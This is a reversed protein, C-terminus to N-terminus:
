VATVGRTHTTKIGRRSLKYQNDAIKRGDLYIPQNVNITIEQNNAANKGAPTVMEPGNEGFVYGKGSRTGRGVVPENILGGGAYWNTMPIDDPSAGYRYAALWQPIKAATTSIGQQVEPLQKYWTWASGFQVDDINPPRGYEAIWRNWAWEPTYVPSNIVSDWLDKGIMQDVVVAKWSDYDGHKKYPMSSTVAFLQNSTLGSEPEKFTNFPNNPTRKYTETEYIGMGIMAAVFGAFGIGGALAAGSAGATAGGGAAAGAGEAAAVTGAGGAGAGAGAAEGAAFYAGAQSAGVEIPVATTAAVGGTIATYAAAGTKYLSALTSVAGLGGGVGGGGGGGETSAAPTKETTLGLIGAIAPILGTTGIGGGAKLGILDFAIWQATMEAIMKAFANLVADKFSNFYDEASKLKGQFVDTFFTNLTGEIAGGRGFISRWIDAGAQGWKKQKLFDQEYAVAMGDFFDDSQLIKQQLLERERLAYWKRLTESDGLLTKLALYEKDLTEKKYEYGDNTLKALDEGLRKEADFVDHANKKQQETIVKEAKGVTEYYELQDKTSEAVRIKVYDELIRANEQAEKKSEDYFIKEAKGMTEFYELGEKMLQAYLAKQGEEYDNFIKENIKASEAAAWNSLLVEKEKNGKALIYAAEYKKTFEGWYKDDNKAMETLASKYFAEWEQTAKKQAEVAATDRKIKDLALAKEKEAQEQSKAIQQNTQGMSEDFWRTEAKALAAKRDKIEQTGHSITDVWEYAWNIMGMYLTAAGKGITEHFDQMRAKNVQLKEAVTLQVEGFKAAQIEANLMALSYLDVNEVGAKLAANVLAMEEKTILGYRKLAKPMGTAIADTINEYATKVDEGTVRASIRAAEMIKILQDGALGLVMGKVAKQMIDSEDVTGASAKKMAAVIQDASEGASAAVLKFSEEAQMAKAGLAVYEMGKGVLAWAGYIAASVAIWNQKLSDLLSTQKGFQQENLQTIKASAVEEARRREDASSKANNTIANQANIVNDRMANFIQDSHSGLARWNKEMLLSTSQASQLIKAEGKTYEASDIGLEVFITGLKKGAM